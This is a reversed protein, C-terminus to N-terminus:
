PRSRERYQLVMDTPKAPNYIFRFRLGIYPGSYDAPLPPFKSASIAAWAARDLSVDGAGQALRMGKVKGNKFIAFEISVEGQLMRPARAIPPALYYWSQKVTKLLPQLYPGFDVGKTDTLIYIGGDRVAATPPQKQEQTKANSAPSEQQQETSSPTSQAFLSASWILGIMIGLRLRYKM